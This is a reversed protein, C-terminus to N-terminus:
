FMVLLQYWSEILTVTGGQCSLLVQPALPTRLRKSLTMMDSHTSKWTPQHKQHGTKDLKLAKM